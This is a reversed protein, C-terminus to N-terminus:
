NTNPRNPSKAAVRTPSRPGGYIVRNGPINQHPMTMSASVTFSKAHNPPQELTRYQSSATSISIQIVTKQFGNFSQQFRAIAATPMISGTPESVLVKPPYKQHLIM